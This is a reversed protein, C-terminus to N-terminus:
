EWLKVIEAGAYYHKLIGEAMMGQQAYTYAGWQCMGVGNGWGQGKFIFNGNSYTMERILTSKLRDYGVIRRFESGYLKKEGAGIFLIRGSPGKELIQIDQPNGQYGIAAAVEQAPIAVTWNQYEKPANQFCNDKVSQFYPTETGLQKPFSEEKTASVQGDCSSYIASVLHDGYVLVQGRTEMVAQKVRKNVKEPAYAQLEEKATSVDANRLKKITGTELAHITLTRSAIAQAALAEVPWNPEMEKAIVGELYTELPMSEIYRKDARWVTIEPEQLYKTRDFVPEDPIPLAPNVSPPPSPPPSPEAPEAPVTQEPARPVPKEAPPRLLTYAGAITFVAVLAIIAINAKKNQM